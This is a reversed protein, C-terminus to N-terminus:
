CELHVNLCVQVISRGLSEYVDVLDSSFLSKVGPHSAETIYQHVQQTMCRHGHGQKDLGEMHILLCTFNSM